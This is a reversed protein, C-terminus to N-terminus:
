NGRLLQSNDLGLLQAAQTRTQARCFNRYSNEHDFDRACWIPLSYSGGGWYAGGDDYDGDVMNVKFLSVSKSQPPTGFAQRGMPAGRPSSVDTFQKAM